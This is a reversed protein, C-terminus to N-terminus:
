GCRKHPCLEVWLMLINRELFFLFMFLYFVFSFDCSFWLLHNESYRFLLLELLFVSLLHVSTMLLINWPFKQVSFSKFKPISLTWQANPLTTFLSGCWLACGHFILASPVCFLEKLHRSLFVRDWACTLFWLAKPKEHADSSWATLFSFSKWGLSQALCTHLFFLCTM